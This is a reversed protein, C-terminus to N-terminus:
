ALAGAVPRLIWEPWFLGPFKGDDWEILYTPKGTSAYPEQIAIITGESCGMKDTIRDGVSRAM